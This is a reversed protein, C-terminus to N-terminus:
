WRVGFAAAARVGSRCGDEHFGWGHYAGAFRVREDGVTSLEPQAAVSQPTYVPHRYHMKALVRDPAVHEAANLTVVYDAPEALRMLRNMDYSVRAAGGEARCGTKLYNWSARAGSREPLLSPDHHLLAENESYGFSGLVRRQRETATDLLALAQDAHTAVVVRDVRHVVDAHDRVDVGDTDPRISRVPSASHVRPLRAAIRDVYQRSGGVVTRWTPSGGVSLMGHNRLFRFLYLAPYRQSIDGGASWVASVMPLAFHEVFYTSYGGADLFERLTTRENAAPDDLLRNAERHFRRVQGLMRLYRTNRLNVASPFLGNLRKAGAYELGCEVCRVSLSMETNQTSVGLESFLRLLYPYTRANHVIFGSDVSVLRGDEAVLEHTHAHGGLRDDSEFLTVDHRKSLLYAATLGSVGAGVVGIREDSM